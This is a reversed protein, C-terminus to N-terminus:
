AANLVALPSTIPFGTARCVLWSNTAKRVSTTALWGAPLPAKVEDSVVEGGVFGGPDLFEEASVRIEVQV